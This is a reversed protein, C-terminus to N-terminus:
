MDKKIANLPSHDKNLFLIAIKKQEEVDLATNLFKTLEGNRKTKNWSLSRKHFPATM